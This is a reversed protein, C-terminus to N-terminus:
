AFSTPPDEPSGVEILLEGNFLGMSVFVFFWGTVFRAFGEVLLWNCLLLEGSFLGMAVFSFFCGDVFLNLGGSASWIGLPLADGKTLFDGRTLVAWIGLPLV